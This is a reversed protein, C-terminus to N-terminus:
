AGGAWPGLGRSCFLRCVQHSRPRYLSSRAPEGHRVLFTDSDANEDCYPTRLKGEEGDPLEMSHPAQRCVRHVRPWRNSSRDCKDSHRPGGRVDVATEPRKSTYLKAFGFSGYTDVVAQLYIRGVGKLRGVYFTDQCLLQGPYSSEVHSEKFCPNAKEILRIQQETLEFGKEAHVEELRLLRKYRIPFTEWNKPM